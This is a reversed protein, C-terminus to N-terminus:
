LYKENISVTKSTISLFDKITTEKAIKENVAYGANYYRNWGDKKYEDEWDEAIEDFEWVKGKEKFITKLLYHGNSNRTKSIEIEKNNFSLISKKDDFAPDRKSVEIKQTAKKFAIGYIIEEKEDFFKETLAMKIKYYETQEKPPLDMDFIWIEEIEIYGMKELAILTHIFLYEQDPELFYDSSKPFELIFNKGYDKEYSSLKDFLMKRQKDFHYFNTRDKLLENHIFKEIYTNVFVELKKRDQAPLDASFEFFELFGLINEYFAFDFIGSTDKYLLPAGGEFLKELFELAKTKFGNLTGAEKEKKLYEYKDKNYQLYIDKHFILGDVRDIGINNLLNLFKAVFLKSEGSATIDDFNLLSRGVLRFGNLYKWLSYLEGDNLYPMKQQSNEM